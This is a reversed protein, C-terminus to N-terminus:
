TRANKTKRSRFKEVDKKLMLLLRKGIREAKLEGDAIYHKVSGDSVGLMAAAESVTVYEKIDSM